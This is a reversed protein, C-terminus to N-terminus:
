AHDGRRRAQGGQPVLRALMSLGVELEGAARHWLERAGGCAGGGTGSLMHRIQDDLEALLGQVRVLDDDAAM